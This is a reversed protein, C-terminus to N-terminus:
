FATIVGSPWNGSNSVAELCFENDSVVWCVFFGGGSLKPHKFNWVQESQWKLEPVAKGLRIITFFGAPTTKRDIVKSSELEFSGLIEQLAMVELSELNM